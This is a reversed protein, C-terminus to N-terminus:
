CGQAPRPCRQRRSGASAPCRPAMPRAPRRRATSPFLRLPVAGREPHAFGAARGANALGLLLGSVGPALLALGFIDLRAGESAGRVPKRATDSTLVVEHEAGDRVVPHRMGAQSPCAITFTQTRVVDGGAFRRIRVNNRSAVYGANAGDGDHARARAPVMA